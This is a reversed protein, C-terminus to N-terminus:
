FNFNISSILYKLINNIPIQNNLFYIYNNIIYIYIYINNLHTQNKFKKPKNQNKSIYFSVHKSIKSCM